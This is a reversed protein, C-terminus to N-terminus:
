LKFALVIPALVRVAKGDELFPKFKWRKVANVSPATLVPNGSVIAVKTVEGSESVAVELEVEGQIKLQRAMPPYEPQVKTEVASLAASRTIKKPVDQALAVTAALAAM